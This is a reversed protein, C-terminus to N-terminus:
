PRDRYRRDLHARFVEVEADAPDGARGCLLGLIRESDTDLGRPTVKGRMTGMEVDWDIGYLESWQRLQVLAWRVDAYAALREDDASVERFRGVEPEYEGLRFAMRGLIVKRHGDGIVGHMAHLNLREKWPPRIHVWATSLGAMQRAVADDVPARAVYSLSDAPNNAPARACAAGCITVLALSASSVAM